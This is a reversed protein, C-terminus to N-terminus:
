ATTSFRFPSTRANVTTASPSPSPPLAVLHHLDSLRLGSAGEEERTWGALHGLRSNTGEATPPRHRALVYPGRPECLPQVGRVVLGQQVTSFSLLAHYARPFCLLDCRGDSSEAGDAVVAPHGFDLSLSLRDHHRQKHVRILGRRQGWVVLFHQGSPRVLRRQHSVERYNYVGQVAPATTNVENYPSESRKGTRKM